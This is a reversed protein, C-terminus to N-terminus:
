KIRLSNTVVFFSSFAMAAAAYMPKLAGVGAIPIGVLNYAFAWTLNGRIVRMTKTSLNLAAIVGSLEPRMLTIDATAIATDTGTGMAISLDASALAAADNIGDGVMLVRHGQSQLFKVHEVKNQPLAGAVVHDADIGVQKAVSLAVEVSDGSVLWPEIGSNRFSQITSIADPKIEDGVAFAALAVGDWALVSVTLGLSQTDTVWQALEPHFPTTSHAVAVPSGILVVPSLMGLNVRGAAGSGPAVSFETVTTAKIGQLKIAAVIAVAVPHESQSEISLATSLITPALLLDTYRLGLPAGAQPLVISQLLSMQGGTLTGTKDLVVADIKKAVELVRPQRIVIGRQAGRGSAVLLAVPTALGLACPCAIVLVAIASSISEALSHDLYRWTFFTGISILTVVPVFVAAIRDAMAQIPAKTGQASVVMATIRALETDSGIRTARITLRGNRNISAGIVQSGTSVDVPISEGTLLSNDVASTGSTVVGDTAIREGPKTVFEDGIELHDIPILVTEGNRLVAVEKSGLALLTSLASSARKKARSELFRGAIVFTIVTASVEAYVDGLATANAYISWGFASLSGLTILTDMTPHTINRIAARHIPIAIILVVPASLGIVLWSTASGLPHQVGYLDLQGIIWAEIRHHWHMNMSIALVPITFLVAFFLSTASKKSHLAVQSSDSILSASYGASKVASILTKIPMEAPAMIHATESAFNVTATVGNIGNLTREIAAVCASCTMGEVRLTTPELAITKIEM